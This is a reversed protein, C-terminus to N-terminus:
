VSAAPVAATPTDAEFQDLFLKHIVPQDERNIKNTFAIEVAKMMDIEKSLLAIDMARRTSATVFMPPLSNDGGRLTTTGAAKRITNFVDVIRRAKSFKVGTAKTIASAERDADLLGIYTMESVIFRDLTAENLVKAGSYQGSDAPNATAVLMFGNHAGTAYPSLVEVGNPNEYITLAFESALFDHLRMLTREDAANIEDLVIIGGARIATPLAGDRWEITLGGNGDGKPLPVGILQDTTTGEALSVVFLPRGVLNAFHRVAANKGTGTHGTLMVARKHKYALALATMEEGQEEYQEPGPVFKAYEPAVPAKDIVIGGISVQGPKVSTFTIAPKTPQPAAAGSRRAEIVAKTTGKPRGPGRKVQNTDM